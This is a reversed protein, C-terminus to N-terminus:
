TAAKCNFEFITQVSIYLIHSLKISLPSTEEEIHLNIRWNYHLNHTFSETYM